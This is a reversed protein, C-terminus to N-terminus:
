TRSQSQRVGASNARDPPLESHPQVARYLLVNPRRFIASFDGSIFITGRYPTNDTSALFTSGSCPLPALPGIVPHSRSSLQTDM